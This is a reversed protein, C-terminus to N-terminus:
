SCSSCRNQKKSRILAIVNLMTCAILLTGACVVRAHATDLMAAIDQLQAIRDNDLLQCLLSASCCFGSLTSCILCGRVQISRVAFVLAALGLILSLLNMQRGEKKKITFCPYCRYKVLELLCNTFKYQEIDFSVSDKFLKM